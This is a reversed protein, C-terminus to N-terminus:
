GAKSRSISIRRGARGLHGLRQAALDHGEHLLQAGLIQELLGAHGLGDVPGFAQEREVHDVQRGLDDGVRQARDQFVLVVDLFELAGLGLADEVLSSFFFFAASRRAESANPSAGL